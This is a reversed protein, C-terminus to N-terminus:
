HSEIWSQHVQAEDTRGLAFFTRALFAHAARLSKPDTGAQDLAIKGEALASELNGQAFLYKARELHAPGFGPAFKLIEELVKQAEGQRSQRTLFMAFELAASPNPNPLKRNAALAARFAAEALQPRKLADEGLGIFTQAQVKLDDAPSLALARTEAAIAIEEHHNMLAWLGYAYHAGPDQPMAKTARELLEGARESSSNEQLIMAGAAKLLPGSAPYRKVGREAADLAKDKQGLKLRCDMLTLYPESGPDPNADLARDLSEAAKALNGQAIYARAAQLNADLSGLSDQAFAPWLVLIWIPM